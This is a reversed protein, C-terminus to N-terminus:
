SKRYDKWDQEVAKAMQKAASRLWSGKRRGLDTLLRKGGPMSGLHVNAAESGMARLLVEEDREAPLNDLDLPNSDPSLRRILWAGIVKQYPDHCRVAANIAKEYYKPGDDVGGNLWVCASPVMAKAERAIFGGRWTAIAVFRRRGLSGLGSERRVIKYDLHPDPLTSEVAKRASRPLGNRLAPRDNLKQWFDEPPKLEEIGIQELIRQREALVIPCGGDGLSEKYGDLIVDCADRLKISLSESDILLKLSTALRVLDNTYPLPYAEDFDDVGWCLRGEVDRWTGFSGVHLDGVCLVRPARHDERCIEPWLQAWRYFTGRFFLFLSKKMEAHKFSLQSEVVDTCRRMWDEYRKTVELIKM